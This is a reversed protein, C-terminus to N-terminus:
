HVLDNAAPMLWKGAPYTIIGMRRCTIEYVQKETLGIYEALDEDPLLTKAAYRYHCLFVTHLSLLDEAAVLTGPPLNADAYFVHKHAFRRGQEAIFLYTTHMNDPFTQTAQRYGFALPARNITDCVILEEPIAQPGFELAAFEISKKLVRFFREVMAYQPSLGAGQVLPNTLIETYVGGLGNEILMDLRDIVSSRNQTLANM